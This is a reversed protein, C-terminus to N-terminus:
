PFAYYYNLWNEIAESSNDGLDYQLLINLIDTNNICTKSPLRVVDVYMKTLSEFRNYVLRIQDVELAYLRKAVDAAEWFSMPNRDEVHVSFAVNDRLKPQNEAARKAKEGVMVLTEKEINPEAILARAITSNLSGCLGKNSMVVVTAVKSQDTLSSNLINEIPKFPNRISLFHHSAQDAAEQTITMKSSAIVKMTTTVKGIAKVSKMRRKLSKLSIPYNRRSIKQKQVKNTLSIQTIRSIM